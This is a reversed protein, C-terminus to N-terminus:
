IQISKHEPIWGLVRRLTYGQSEPLGELMRVVIGPHCKLFWCDWLGQIFSIDARCELFM